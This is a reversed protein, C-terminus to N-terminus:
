GARSGLWLGAFLAAIGLANNLLVNVAAMGPRGDHVFRATDAAFSSFTTFAGMFGALLLWRAEPAIRARTEALAFVLGFLLSGAVNVALTGLWARPALLAYVGLRALTGLAGALALLTLALAPHLTTPM